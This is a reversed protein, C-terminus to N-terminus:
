TAIMGTIDFPKMLYVALDDANTWVIQREDVGVRPFIDVAVAWSVRLHFFVFLKVKGPGLYRAVYESSIFSVV